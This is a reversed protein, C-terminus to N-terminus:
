FRQVIEWGAVRALSPTCLHWDGNDDRAVVRHPIQSGYVQESIPCIDPDNAGNHAGIVPRGNDTIGIWIRYTM